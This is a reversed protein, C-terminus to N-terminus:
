AARKLARHLMLDLQHFASRFAIAASSGALELANDLRRRAYDSVRTGSLHYERLRPLNGLLHAGQDTIRTNRLSVLRLGSAARLKAIGNDGIRTDDLNLVQVGSGILDLPSDDTIGTGNLYIERLNPLCTLYRLCHGTLSTNSLVVVRLAQRKEISFNLLLSFDADALGPEGHLVLAAGRSVLHQRLEISM